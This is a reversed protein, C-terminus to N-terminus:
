SSRTWSMPAGRATWVVVPPAVRARPGDAIRSGTRREIEAIRRALRHQYRAWRHVLVRRATRARHILHAERATLAAAREVPPVPEPGAWPRAAIGAWAVFFVLLTIAIAYVRVTDSGKM